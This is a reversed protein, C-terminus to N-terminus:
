RINKVFYYISIPAIVFLIIFIITNVESIITAFMIIAYVLLIIVRRNKDLKIKSLQELYNQFEM